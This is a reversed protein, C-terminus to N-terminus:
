KDRNDDLTDKNTISDYHKIYTWIDSATPTGFSINLMKSSKFLPTEEIQLEKKTNIFLEFLYNKILLAKVENDVRNYSRYHSGILEFL